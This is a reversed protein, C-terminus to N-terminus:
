ILEGGAAYDSADVDVIFPEGLRPFALVPESALRMKLLHFAEQFNSDWSFCVGEGTLKNLPCSIDAFDQIFHRYFGALGLFQKVEHKSEPCYFSNNIAETLRKQPKIGKHSLEYGLFDVNNSSFM